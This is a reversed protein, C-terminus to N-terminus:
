TAALEWSSLLVEEEYTTRLGSRAIERDLNDSTVEYKDRGNCLISYSRLACHSDM